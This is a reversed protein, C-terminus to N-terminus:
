FSKAIDIFDRAKLSAGGVLAGDVDPMKFLEAANQANVSGGYLLSLDSLSEDKQGLWSRITAHMEQVQASTATQGTGIAWIPEYAIIMKRIDSVDLQGLTQELQKLVYEAQGQHNRVEQPEGCCFVVQLGAQHALQIKELLISDGEQYLQRRESHGILVATAGCSGLMMASVEGTYPGSLHNACNQAGVRVSSNKLLGVMTEIHTFPPFLMVDVSADVEDEAMAMIESALAIGSKFDTNMKWNGAVIKKSM